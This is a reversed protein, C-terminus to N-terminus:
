MYSPSFLYSLYKFKTSNISVIKCFQLIKRSKWQNCLQWNCYILILLSKSHRHKIDKVISEMKRGSRALSLNNIKSSAQRTRLDWEEARGMRKQDRPVLPRPLTVSIYQGLIGAHFSATGLHWISKLLLSGCHLRRGRYHLQAKRWKWLEQGKSAFFIFRRKRGHPGALAISLFRYRIVVRFISLKRYDSKSQCRNYRDISLFRYCCSNENNAGDIKVIDDIERDWNWQRRPDFGLWANFVPGQKFFQSCIAILTTMRKPWAVEREM